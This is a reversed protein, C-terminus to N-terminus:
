FNGVSKISDSSIVYIDIMKLLVLSFPAFSTQNM